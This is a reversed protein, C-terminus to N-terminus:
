ERALFREAIPALGLVGVVNEERHRDAHVLIQPDGLGILCGFQEAVAGIVVAGAVEVADQQFGFLEGLISPGRKELRREGAADAGEPEEFFGDRYGIVLVGAFQEAHNFFLDVGVPQRSTEVGVGGAGFEGEFAAASPDVEFGM